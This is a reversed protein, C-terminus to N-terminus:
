RRISDITLNHLSHLPGHCFILCFQISSLPPASSWDSRTKYHKPQLTTDQLVMIDSRNSRNSRNNSGSVLLFKLLLRHAIFDNHGSVPGSRRFSVKRLAAVCCSSSGLDIAPVLLRPRSAHSSTTMSSWSSSATADDDYDIAVENHQRSPSHLYMQQHFAHINRYCCPM